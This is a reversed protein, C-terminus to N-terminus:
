KRKNDPSPATDPKDASPSASQNVNGVVGAAATNASQTVSGIQISPAQPLTGGKQPAGAGLVPERMERQFALVLGGLVCVAALFYALIQFRADSKGKAMKRGVVGFVLALAFGALGLPNTVVKTWDM